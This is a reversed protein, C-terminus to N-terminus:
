SSRPRQIDLLPQFTSAWSSSMSSQGIMAELDRSTKIWGWWVKSEGEIQFAVLKIKAADSTIDMVELVKEVQRFGHNAVM